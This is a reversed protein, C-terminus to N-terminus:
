QPYTKEYEKIASAVQSDDKLNEWFNVEKREIFMKDQPGHLEEGLKVLSVDGGGNDRMYYINELVLQTESISTIRGFYVQGSNLFVGQYAEKDINAEGTTNKRDMLEKELSSIKSSLTETENRLKSTEGNAKQVANKQSTGWLGTAILGGLLSVITLVLAITKNNDFKKPKAAEPAVKETNPQIPENNM